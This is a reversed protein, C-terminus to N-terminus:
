SNLAMRCECGTRRRKLEKRGALVWSDHYHDKYFHAEEKANEKAEEQGAAGEGQSQSQAQSCCIFMNGRLAAGVLCCMHPTHMNWTGYVPARHMGIGADRSM